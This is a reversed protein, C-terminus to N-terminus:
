SAPGGDLGEDWLPDRNPSSSFVVGPRTRACYYALRQSNVDLSNRDAIVWGSQRSGDLAEVEIRYTVRTGRPGFQRLNLLELGSNECWLLINTKSYDPPDLPLLFRSRYSRIALFLGLITGALCLLEVRGM